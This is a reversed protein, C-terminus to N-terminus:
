GRRAVGTGSEGNGGRLIGDLARGFVRRGVRAVLPDLASPLLPFRLEEVWLVVSGSDTAHVEIEAWGTIVRGRKELRCRGPRGPSPPRRDVVEMPDDFGFRGLASRVVFVAGVGTAPGSVTEVATLPMQAAHAPWDTVRLWCERATLGTTRGLRFVAM